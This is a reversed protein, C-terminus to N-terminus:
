VKYNEKNAIIQSFDYSVPAKLLNPDQMSETPPYVMSWLNDAEGLENSHCFSGESIKHVCERSARAINYSGNSQTLAVTGLMNTNANATYKYGYLRHCGMIPDGEVEYLKNNCYDLMRQLHKEGMFSRRVIDTWFLGEMFFEMRREQLLSDLNFVGNQGYDGIYGGNELEYKYARRRVTNVGSLVNQNTTEEIQYYGMLAETLNLYVESMRLM